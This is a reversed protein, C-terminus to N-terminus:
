PSTEHAEDGDLSHTYWVVIEDYDRIACHIGTVYRAPDLGTLDVPKLAEVAPTGDADLALVPRFTYKFSPVLAKFLQQFDDLRAQTQRLSEIAATDAAAQGTALRQMRQRERECVFPMLEDRVFAAWEPTTMTSAVAARNEEGLTDLKHRATRVRLDDFGETAELEAIAANAPKVSAFFRGKIRFARNLEELDLGFIGPASDLPGGIAEVWRTLETHEAPLDPRVKMQLRFMRHLIAARDLPEAFLLIMAHAQADRARHRSIDDAVDYCRFLYPLLDNGHLDLRIVKTELDPLESEWFEDPESPDLEGVAIRLERPVVEGAHLETRLLRDAMEWASTIPTFQVAERRLDNMDWRRPKVSARSLSGEPRLSSVLTAASLLKGEGEATLELRYQELQIVARAREEAASIAATAKGGLDAGAVLLGDVREAMTRFHADGIGDYPNVPDPAESATSRAPDIPTADPSPGQQADALSAQSATEHAHAAPAPGKSCGSALALSLGAMLTFPLETRM